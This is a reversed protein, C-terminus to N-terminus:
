QVYATVVSSIAGNYSYIRVVQMDFPLGDDHVFTAWRSLLVLNFKCCIARYAERM